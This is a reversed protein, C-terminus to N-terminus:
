RRALSVGLTILGDGRSLEFFGLRDYFARAGHNAAVMTLHLRQVGRDALAAGVIEILRRGYGRGQAQPLVDIHLHAPYDDVEPILLREPDHGLDIMSEEASRPSVSRPYKSAFAPLLRARYEAVFSRTNETAVVYGVCRRGDHVVFALRPDLDVYPAFFLDGMLADDSYKGRADTGADATRVCIDFCEARDGPAYPRITLERRGETM